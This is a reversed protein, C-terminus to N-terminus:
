ERAGGNKLMDLVEKLATYSEVALTRLELFEAELATQRTMLIAMKPLLGQEQMARREPPMDTPLRRQLQDMRGHVAALANFAGSRMNEHETLRAKLDAVEARLQELESMSIEQQPKVSIEAAEDNAGPFYNHM